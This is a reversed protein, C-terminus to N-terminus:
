NGVHNEGTGAKYVGGWSDCLERTMSHKKTGVATITTKDRLITCSSQDKGRAQEGLHVIGGLVGAGLGVALLLMCIRKTIEM